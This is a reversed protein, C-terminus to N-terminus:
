NKKSIRVAVIIIILVLVVNLAGIGWLYWSDGKILNGTLFSFLKTKTITVSVPQPIVKSGEVLEISFNQEGEVNNNVNLKVSIDTSKGADLTIKTPSTEILNAWSTYGAINVNFTRLKTDTNKVTATIDLEQGAKGGSDINATLSLKPNLVCSGSVILPITFVSEDDNSNQYVNDNDDYVSLKIPYNSDEINTPVTFQFDLTRKEFANIDGVDIKQNIGLKTNIVQVYVNNQDSDGINWVDATLQVDEGCGATEPTFKINELVVFDSEINIDLDQQGYTSTANGTEDNDGTAWAYFVYRDNEHNQFKDPNDLKFNLTLTKSDGRNLNFRSEKEIGVIWKGTNQDYIGWKVYINRIKDGSNANNNQINVKAIIEDLPFVSTDKGFGKDVTIDDISIAMKGDNNIKETYQSPNAVNFSATQAINGSLATATLTTSYTKGLNFTFDAPVNYSVTIIQPNGTAAVINSPSAFTITKGNDTILSLGSFTIAGLTGNVDITFSQAGTTLPLALPTQNSFTAASALGAIIVLSLIGLSLLGLFKNKM